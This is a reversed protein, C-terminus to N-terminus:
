TPFEARGVRGDLLSSTVHLGDELADGRTHQREVFIEGDGVAIGRKEAHKKGVFVGRASVSRYYAIPRLNDEWRVQLCFHLSENTAGIPHAKGGILNLNRKMAHGHVQRGCHSSKLVS